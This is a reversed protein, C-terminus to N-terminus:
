ITTFFRKPDKEHRANCVFCRQDEKSFSKFVENCEHCILNFMSLLVTEEQEYDVLPIEVGKLAGTPCAFCKECAICSSVNFVLESLDGKTRWYISNTPCIRECITCGNCQDNVEISLFNKRPLLQDCVYENAHLLIAKDLLQKKMNIREILPLAITESQDCKTVESEKVPFFIEKMKSLSFKNLLQRRSISNVIQKNDDIPLDEKMHTQIKIGIQLLEEKINCVHKEVRTRSLKTCNHCHGVYLNVADKTNCYQSLLASDLYLLCPVKIGHNFQEVQDCTIIANPFKETYKKITEYPKHIHDLALVPCESVCAGCDICKTEEIKPTQDILSIADEECIDVCLRCVVNKNLDNKCAEKHVDIVKTQLLKELAESM